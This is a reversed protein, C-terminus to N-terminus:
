KKYDSYNPMPVLFFNSEVKASPPTWTAPTLEPVAPGTGDDNIDTDFSSSQNITSIKPPTIDLIGTYIEPTPVAPEFSASINGFRRIYNKALRVEEDLKEKVKYYYDGRVNIVVTGVSNGMREDLKYDARIMKWVTVLDYYSGYFLAFRIDMALLVRLIKVLMELVLKLLLAIRRITLIIMKYTDDIASQVLKETKFYTKVLERAYEKATDLVQDMGPVISGLGGLSVGYWADDAEDSINSNMDIYKFELLNALAGTGEDVEWYEIFFDFEPHDRVIDFFSVADDINFLEELDIRINAKKITSSGVRTSFLTRNTPNGTSPPMVGNKFVYTDEQTVFDLIGTDDGIVSMRVVVLKEAKVPVMPNAEVPCEVYWNYENERNNNKVSSLGVLNNRKLEPNGISVPKDQWVAERVEEYYGDALGKVIDLLGDPDSLSNLGMGKWVPDAAIKAIRDLERAMYALVGTPFAAYLTLFTSNEARPANAYNFVADSMGEVTTKYIRRGKEDRPDVGRSAYMDAKIKTAKIAVLDEADSGVAFITELLEEVNIGGGVETKMIEVTKDLVKDFGKAVGEKALDKIKKIESDELVSTVTEVADDVWKFINDDLSDMEKQLQTAFGSTQEFSKLYVLLIDLLSSKTYLKM